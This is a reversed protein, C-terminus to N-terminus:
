SLGGKHLFAQREVDSAHRAEKQWLISYIETRKTMQLDINMKKCRAILQQVIVDVVRLM